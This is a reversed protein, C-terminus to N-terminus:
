AKNVLESRWTSDWNQSSGDGMVLISAKIDAFTAAYTGPKLLGDSNFSSPILM